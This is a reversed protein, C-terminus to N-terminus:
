PMQREPRMVSDDKATVRNMWRAIMFFIFGYTVAVYIYSHHIVFYFPTLYAWAVCVLTVRLLNILIIGLLGTFFFRTKDKLRGKFIIVTAAFIVMARMGLCPEGINIYKNSANMYVTIDRFSVDMGFASLIFGALAAYSCSMVHVIGAWGHNLITGPITAFHYFFRWGIYVLVIKFPILYQEKSITKLNVKM